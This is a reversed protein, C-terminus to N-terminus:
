RAAANRMRIMSFVLSSAVVADRLQWLSPLVRLSAGREALAAPLDDLMEVGLPAVAQDSVWYGAGADHLRFTEVPMAYCQLRAVQLRELWGAEIAIVVADDGLWFSVDSATSQPGARFCVRPCERPLLYNVLFADEIAWVVAGETYDSRRPRFVAVAPDDSLHFLKM